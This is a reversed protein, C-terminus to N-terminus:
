GLMEKIIAGARGADFQGAHASKMAGMVKGMDKISTAGAQAIAAAIASKLAADDMQQPLFEEIIAIEDQETQVLDQRGGKQYLEVSERRQKVMGQLMQVIEADPIATVGKTRANIDQDKLKAMILRMAAVRTADRNLMATKYADNIKDRLM